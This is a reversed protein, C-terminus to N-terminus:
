YNGTIEAYFKDRAWDKVIILIKYISTSIGLSIPLIIGMWAILSIDGQVFDALKRALFQGIPLAVILSFLLDSALTWKRLRATKHLCSHWTCFTVCSSTLMASVGYLCFTISFLINGQRTMFHLILFIAMITGSMLWWFGIWKEERFM